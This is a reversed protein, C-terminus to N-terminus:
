QAVREWFEAARYAPVSVRIMQGDFHPGATRVMEVTRRVEAPMGNWVAPSFELVVDTDPQVPALRGAAHEEQLQQLLARM